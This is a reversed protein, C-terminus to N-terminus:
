KKPSASPTATAKIVKTPKFYGSSPILYIFDAATQNNQITSGVGAMFKNVKIDDATTEENGLRFITDGSYVVVVKGEKPKLTVLNGSIDEVQGWFTTPKQMDPKISVILKKAVLVEKDDVDGLGSVFDGEELSKFGTKIVNKKGDQFITYENTQISKNGNLTEVVVTDSDLSVVEGFYAKNQLDKKVENKLSAAKSAIEKKLADLKLTLSSPTASPSAENAYLTSPLAYLSFITLITIALCSLAIRKVSFGLKNKLM